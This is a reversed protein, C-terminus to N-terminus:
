YDYVQDTSSYLISLHNNFTPRDNNLPSVNNYVIMTFYTKGFQVPETMIIGFHTLFHGTVSWQM